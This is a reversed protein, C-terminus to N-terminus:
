HTEVFSSATVLLVGSRLAAKRFGEGSEGREMASRLHGLEAGTGSKEGVCQEGLANGDFGRIGRRRHDRDALGGCGSRDPLLPFGKARLGLGLGDGRRTQKM